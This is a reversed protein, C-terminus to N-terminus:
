HCQYGLHYLSPKPRSSEDQKWFMSQLVQDGVVALDAIKLIHKQEIIGM